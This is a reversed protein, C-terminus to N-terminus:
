FKKDPLNDLLFSNPSKNKLFKFDDVVYKRQSRFEFGNNTDTESFHFLPVIARSRIYIEQKQINVIFVVSSVEPQKNFVSETKIVSYCPMAKVPIMFVFLLLTLLLFKLNKM